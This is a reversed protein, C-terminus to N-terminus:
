YMGEGKCRIQILLGECDHDQHFCGYVVVDLLQLSLRPFTRGLRSVEAARSVPQTRILIAAVSLLFECSDTQARFQRFEVLLWCIKVFGTSRYIFQGHNCITDQRVIKNDSGYTRTVRKRGSFVNTLM